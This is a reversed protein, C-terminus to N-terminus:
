NGGKSTAYYDFFPRISANLGELSSNLAILANDGKPNMAYAYLDDNAKLMAGVIGDPRNVVSGEYLVASSQAQNLVDLRQSETLAESAPEAKVGKAAKSGKQGERRADVDNNYIYALDTLQTHVRAQNTASMNKLDAQLTLLIKEVAAHGDKVAAMLADNQVKEAYMKTLASTLAETGEAYEVKYKAEDGTLSGFEASLGRYNELIRGSSDSIRQPSDAGAMIALRNGFATILGLADQRAKIGEPSYRFYLATPRGAEDRVQIYNEKHYKLQTFYFKRALENQQSYYDKFVASATSMASSYSTVPEKFNITTCAVLSVIAGFLVSSISLRAVHKIDM